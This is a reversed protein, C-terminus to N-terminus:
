FKKAANMENTAQFAKFAREILNALKSRAENSLLFAYKEPVQNRGYFALHHMDQVKGQLKENLKQTEVAFRTVFKGLAFMKADEREDSEDRKKYFEVFAQLKLTLVLERDSEYFPRFVSSIILSEAETINGERILVLTRNINLSTNNASNADINKSEKTIKQQPEYLRFQQANQNQSSGRTNNICKPDKEEVCKLKKEENKGSEDIYIIANTRFADNIKSVNCWIPEYQYSRQKVLFQANPRLKEPINLTDMAKARVEDLTHSNSVKLTVIKDKDAFRAITVERILETWVISFITLQGFIWFSKMLSSVAKSLSFHGANLVIQGLITGVDFSLRTSYCALFEHKGGHVAHEEGLAFSADVEVKCIYSAANVQAPLSVAIYGEDDTRKTKMLNEFVEVLSLLNTLKKVAFGEPSGVKIEIPYYEITVQQDFLVGKIVKRHIVDRSDNEVGFAARLENFVTEPVAIFDVKEVLKPKLEYGREAKEVISENSISSLKIHHTSLTSNTAKCHFKSWWKQAVLYGILKAVQKVVDLSIITPYPAHFVRLATRNIQM